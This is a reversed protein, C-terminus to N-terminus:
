TEESSALSPSSLRVWAAIKAVLCRSWHAVVLVLVRQALDGEVRQQALHEGADVHDEVVLRAPPQQEVGDDADAGVEAEVAHQGPDDAHAALQDTRPVGGQAHEAGTGALPQPGEHVVPDALLLDQLDAVQRGAVPQEAQDDVLRVRQPQVVDGLVRRRVAERRVM